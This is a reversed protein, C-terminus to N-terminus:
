LRMDLQQLVTERGDSGIRTLVLRDGAAETKLQLDLLAVYKATVGRIVGAVSAPARSHHLITALDERTSQDMRM